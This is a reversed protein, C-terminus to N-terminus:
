VSYARGGRMRIDSMKKHDVAIVINSAIPIHQLFKSVNKRTNQRKAKNQNLTAWSLFLAAFLFSHASQTLDTM